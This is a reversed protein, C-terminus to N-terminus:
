AHAQELWAAIEAAIARAARPVATAVDPSLAGGHAFAAGAIAHVICTPPLAGLARALEITEALPMQHTSARTGLAPLPAGAVDFRALTGPPGATGAEAADVLWAAAAGEFAALIRDPAGDCALAAVAPPLGGALATVVAPGAGDDGRLPNGIGIVVARAAEAV